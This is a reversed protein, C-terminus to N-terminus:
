VLVEKRTCTGGRQQSSMKGWCACCFGRDSGVDSRLAKGCRQCVQRFYAAHQECLDGHTAEQGCDRLLCFNV